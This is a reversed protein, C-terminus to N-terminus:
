RPVKALALKEGRTLQKFAAERQKALTMSRFYEAYFLSVPRRARTYNAGSKLENHAKLRKPFDNTSGAYLTGDKCKLLYAVFRGRKNATRSSSKTPTM